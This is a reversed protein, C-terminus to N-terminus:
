TENHWDRVSKCTLHLRSKSTGNDVEGNFFTNFSVTYRTENEKLALVSHRLHAPFILLTSKKPPIKFNFGAVTDDVFRFTSPVNKFWENPIEFVTEGSSHSTLYFVGGLICNLHSHMHHGQLKTAKNAWCGTIPLDLNKPLGVKDRVALVCEDFWDFLESHFFLDEQAISNSGNNKWKIQQQVAELVRETLSDDCTFKYFTSISNFPIPEM